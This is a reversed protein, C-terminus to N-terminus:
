KRAVCHRGRKANGDYCMLGHCCPPLAPGCTWLHPLCLPNQVLRQQYHLPM